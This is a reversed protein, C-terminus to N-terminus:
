SKVSKRKYRNQVIGSVFSKSEILELTVEKGTNGFLPIGEGLMIPIKTIVMEDILDEKLFSQITIGGDIYLTKYGRSSLESVVDKVDKNLLEVMLPFKNEISKLRSSVVFV